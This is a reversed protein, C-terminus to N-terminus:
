KNLLTEITEKARQDAGPLKEIEFLATDLNDCRAASEVNRAINGLETFGFNAAMGKLEHARDRIDDINGTEKLSLLAAVLSECTTAFGQILDNFQEKGLSDLLNQLTNQNFVTNSTNKKEEKFIEAAEEFSDFDSPDGEEKQTQLYHQMPSLTDEETETNIEPEHQTEDVDNEETVTNKEQNIAMDDTQEALPTEPLSVPNELNGKYVKALTETLKEPEIPKAVFGNLGASYYEEVDSLAINGTIAIIPTVAKNKDPLTRITKTTEVGSMGTLSIDTLIVDFDKDRVIDLASEGSDALTVHHGDKELFGQLVKRNM